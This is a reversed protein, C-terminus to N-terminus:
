HDFSWLTGTLFMFACLAIHSQEKTTQDNECQSFCQPRNHNLKDETNKHKSFDKLLCKVLVMIYSTQAKFQNQTDAQLGLLLCFM